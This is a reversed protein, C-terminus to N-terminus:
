PALQRRVTGAGSYRHQSYLDNQCTGRRDLLFTTTNNPTAGVPSFLSTAPSRCGVSPTTRDELALLCLGPRQAARRARPLLKTFCRM